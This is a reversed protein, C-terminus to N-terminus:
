AKAGKYGPMYSFRLWGIRLQKWTGFNLYVFRFSGLSIYLDGVKIM